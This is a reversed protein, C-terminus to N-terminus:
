FKKKKESPIMFEQQEYCYAKTNPSTTKTLNCGKNCYIM